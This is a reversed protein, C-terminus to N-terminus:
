FGVALRLQLADEDPRDGTAAGGDFTTHEYDLLWKVNENLYWNLGVGWSDARRASTLPDAFSDAGGEFAADGVSLSQLRAVVELAGWTGDSPSFRTKPEFGRFSAEEGTLFYSVALQWAETDVRGQRTGAAVV